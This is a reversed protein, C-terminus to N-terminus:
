HVVFGGAVYTGGPSVLLNYAPSQAKVRPAMPFMHDATGFVGPAVQFPHEATVRVGNGIEIYEDPEVCTIAEVRGGIVLDGVHLTEIPVEGNPTLVPTGQEFCGGGGRAWIVTANLVLTITLAIFKNM